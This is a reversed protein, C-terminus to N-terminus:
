DRTCWSHHDDLATALRWGPLRNQADGWSGCGQWSADFSLDANYINALEIRRHMLQEDTPVPGSNALQKARDNSNSTWAEKSLEMVKWARDPQDFRCAFDAIWRGRGDIAFKFVGDMPCAVNPGYERLDWDRDHRITASFAGRTRWLVRFITFMENMVSDTHANGLGGIVDYGYVDFEISNRKSPDAYRIDYMEHLRPRQPFAIGDGMELSYLFINMNKVRMFRHLKGLTLDDRMYCDLFFSPLLNFRQFNQGIITDVGVNFGQGPSIDVINNGANRHIFELTHVYDLATENPFGVIWNTYAAVGAEAGDRFNQEMEAVTVGKDMADLVAQSGSECGYSLAVCGSDALDRYYDIDMRGDCRAYGTWHIKMGSAIIGRCFARLEGINGNVLSDIFWYANIGHHHYLHDVEGLVSGAQRQRYKYFHTEECFTCKATCGRSLESNVGNPVDYLDLDFFGYDPMPLSDLDVRQSSPQRFVMPTAHRTGREIEELLTLFTGEGEGNVTYDFCPDPTYWSYHTQSGGVVTKIHPWRRKIETAMWRTPEINCYYLTFGVVDPRLADIRDLVGRMIPEVHGHLDTWYRDGLWHWDGHGSWPDFELDWAPAKGKRPLYDRAAMANVDIVNTAYGAARTASAIKALNYPPFRTAWEPLIMLLVSTKRTASDIVLPTLNKQKAPRAYRAMAEAMRVHRLDADATPAIPGIDGFDRM